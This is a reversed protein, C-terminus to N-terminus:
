KAPSIEIVRIARPALIERRRIVAGTEALPLSGDPTIGTLRYSDAHLDHKKPDIAYAFPIEEDVFNALVVALHGDQAQWLRGEASPVHAARTAEYMGWGLDDLRFEPVANIPEIPRLLRGFTLFKGAAVRFQGCRKLYDVKRAYEPQFLGLDMWGNQRGNMLAQGQAFIFLRDGKTYDCPSGFFVTYGSYVVQLMPIETESPQSWLLNGDLVDFFM